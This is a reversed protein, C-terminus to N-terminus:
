SCLYQTISSICQSKGATGECCFCKNTKSTSKRASKEDWRYQWESTTGGQNCSVALGDAACECAGFVSCLFRRWKSKPKVWNWYIGFGDKAACDQYSIDPSLPGFAFLWFVILVLTLFGCFVSLFVLGGNSASTEGMQIRDVCYSTDASENGSGFGRDQKCFSKYNNEKVKQSMVGAVIAAITFIIIVPWFWLRKWKSLPVREKDFPLLLFRTKTGIMGFDFGDTGVIKMGTLANKQISVPTINNKPITCYNTSGNAVYADNPTRNIITVCVTGEIKKCGVSVPGDTTWSM